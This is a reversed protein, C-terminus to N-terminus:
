PASAIRAVVGRHDSGFLPRLDTSGTWGHPALVHDIPLKLWPSFRPFTNRIPGIWGTRTARTIQRMTASWPVMNFDGGLFVPGDLTELVQLLEAMQTAQQYPYPWHLHLSVLWVPGDPSIVQMVAMGKGERCIESGSVGPWRTVIAVAGVRAFDCVLQTPLSESLEALVARNEPTVEQLTLIDPAIARVDAALRATEGMRFSMNKQYVTVGVPGASPAVGLALVAPITTALALGGGLGALRDGLSWLVVSLVVGAVAIQLRIVALSDGLPHVEGFLSFALLCLMLAM